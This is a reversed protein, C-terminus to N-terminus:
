DNKTNEYRKVTPEGHFWLFATYAAVDLPDGKEIHEMMDSRCEDMWGPFSWDDTYKYKDQAKLLKQMLAESFDRVLKVTNTNLHTPVTLPIWGLDEPAPEFGKGPFPNIELETTM